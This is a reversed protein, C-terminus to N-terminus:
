ASVEFLGKDDWNRTMRKMFGRRETECEYYCEMVAKNFPRWNIREGRRNATVSYRGPRHQEDAPCRGFSPGEGICTGAGDM